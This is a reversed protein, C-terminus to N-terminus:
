PVCTLQELYDFVGDPLSTIGKNSLDLLVGSESNCQGIRALPAGSTEGMFTCRGFSVKWAVGSARTPFFVLALLPGAWTCFAFGAGGKVRSVVSRRFSCM